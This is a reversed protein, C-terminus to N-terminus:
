SEGQTQEDKDARVDTPGAIIQGRPAQLNRLHRGRFFLVQQAALLSERRQRRFFLLPQALQLRREIGIRMGLLKLLDQLVVVFPQFRKRRALPRFQGIQSGRIADRLDFSDVLLLLVRPLLGPPRLQKRWFVRLLDYAPGFINNPRVAFSPESLHRRRSALREFM